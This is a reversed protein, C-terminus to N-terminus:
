LINASAFVKEVDAVSKGFHFSKTGFFVMLYLRDDKVTGIGIAEYAVRAKSTFSMEFRFGNQGGFATPRLNRVETATSVILLDITAQVLEAIETPTAGSRYLPRVAKAESSDDAFKTPNEGSRVGAYIMLRDLLIGDLTWVQHGSSGSLFEVSNWQTPPEISFKEAISVRKAEVLAYSQCAALLAIALVAVTRHIM